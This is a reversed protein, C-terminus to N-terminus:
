QVLQWIAAAPLYCFGFAVHFTDEEEKERCSLVQLAHAELECALAQQVASNSLSYM